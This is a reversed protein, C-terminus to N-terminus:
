AKRGHKRWFTSTLNTGVKLESVIMGFIILFCGILKIIGLKEVEGLSNPVLVAFFAGFVPELTLILATRTPTTHKQAITQVGFAFATGLAGTLILTFIVGGNFQAPTKDYFIWVLCYLLAAKVIQSVAIVKENEDQTFHDISIIQFAFCFACIFTLVDGLNFNYNIGGTLLFLGFLALIVGIVSSIHPRKKLIYASLFPVIIVNLGTIFASNSASTYQLGTVQLAMGLFLLIGVCSGKLITKVSTQKFEKIFLFFIIVGAILFRLSLYAYVSMFELVNKMMIFSSGWIITMSLIALEAKRQKSM